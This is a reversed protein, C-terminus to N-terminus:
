ELEVRDGVSWPQGDKRRDSLEVASFCNGNPGGLCAENNTDAWEEAELLSQYPGYEIKHYWGKGIGGTLVVVYFGM